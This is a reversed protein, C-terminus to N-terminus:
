MSVSRENTAISADGPITLYDNNGDLDWCRGVESDLLNRVGTVFPTRFSREELQVSSVYLVVGINNSDYPDGNGFNSLRVNMDANALQHDVTATM